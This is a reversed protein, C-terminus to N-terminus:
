RSQKFELVRAKPSPLEELTLMERLTRVPIAADKSLRSLDIPNGYLMEAMKRMLRPREPKVQEDGPESKAGWNTRLQQNLYRYQNKTVLSLSEARRVLFALSVGWRQKLPVLSSITVPRQMEAQMTEAPLLFERTFARAEVDADAISTQLPSHMVLHALEEAGTFRERYATKGQLMAIVPRAPDRGAWASFGDFGNVELPLSLVLIGNRDFTAMLDRIPTHPSLGLATRTIQACTDPDDNLRPVNVPIKRLRSSLLTALEFAVQAVAHAKTKMSAKVSAQARYLLTGFPLELLEGREFFAVDFGTRLAITKLYAASPRYLGSEIAAIGSQTTGLAEALEAQTIGCVDRALRIRAGIM